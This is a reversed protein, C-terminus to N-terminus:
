LNEAREQRTKVYFESLASKVVSVALFNASKALIGATDAENVAISAIQTCVHCDM